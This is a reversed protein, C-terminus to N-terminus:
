LHQPEAPKDLMDIFSRAANSLSRKQHYIYGLKRQLAVSSVELKALQKDLMTAPLVSWGLGIGALMKITELYNTSLLINLSLKSNVFLQQIIQGTYTNEGPLIVPYHSLTELSIPNSRTLEHDPAVVFLLPDPWVERATLHPDCEPALTAIALEIDGHLVADHAKESDMFEIDLKVNPYRTSFASLVPPLRHLGIHHSTALSLRGTVLGSLNRIAQETDEIEQIIPNARALLKAGSETLTVTRGIRDFLRAQLQDELTSVRKSIAPQTLHLQEGAISFSGTEAVAIFTRLLQTDM